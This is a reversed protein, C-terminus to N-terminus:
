KFIPNGIVMEVGYPTSISGTFGIQMVEGNVCDYEFKYGGSGVDRQPYGIKKVVESNTM